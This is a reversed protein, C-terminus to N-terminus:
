IVEQTRETLKKRACASVRWAAWGLCATTIASAVIPGIFFYVCSLVLTAVSFAFFVWALPVITHPVAAAMNGLHWALFASLLLSATVMLGFGLYVGGYSVESGMFRWQVHDMAARVAAVQLSPSKKSLLGFTHGVAFIIFVISAIRYVTKAAM